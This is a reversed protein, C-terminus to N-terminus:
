TLAQCQERLNKHLLRQSAMLLTLRLFPWVKRNTSPSLSDHNIFRFILQKAASIYKYVCRIISMNSLSAPDQDSTNWLVTGFVNSLRALTPKLVEGKVLVVSLVIPDSTNTVSKRIVLEDSDLGFHGWNMEKVETVYKM